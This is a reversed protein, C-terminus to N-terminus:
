QPVPDPNPNLPDCTPGAGAVVKVYTVCQAQVCTGALRQAYVQIQSCWVYDRKGCETTPNFLCAGFPRDAGIQQCYTFVAAGCTRQSEPATDVCGAAFCRYGSADQKCITNPGASTAPPNAPWDDGLAVAAILLGGFASIGIAFASRATKSHRM